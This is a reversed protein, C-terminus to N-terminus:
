KKENGRYLWKTFSHGISGEYNVHVLEFRRDSETEASSQFNDLENFLFKNLIIM